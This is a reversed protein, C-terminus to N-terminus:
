VWKNKITNARKRPVAKRNGGKTFNHRKAISLDPNLIHLVAYNYVACDLAENDDADKKTWKWKGTNKNFLMVESTLQKFYETGSREHPFHCYGPGAETINLRKMLVRKLRDVALSHVAPRYKGNTMLTPATIRIEDRDWGGVGKVAFIAPMKRGHRYIVEYVTMANYGIDIGVGSVFMFGGGECALGKSLSKIANKYCVNRYDSTDGEFIQYDLNWREEDRGWGVLECELRDKQVDIAATIIKVGKPVEQYDETRAELEHEDATDGELEYTEGLVTNYFVGMDQTVDSDVDIFNQVVDQLRRLPSYLASLQFSAHGRTERNPVWGGGDSEAYRILKIRETDNFGHDCKKCHVKATAVDDEEWKVQEWELTQKEGCHPCVVWFKRQDGQKYAQEIWSKNKVTPTSLELLKRKEGFTESRQRLLNVPHGEASAEYADTEDCIVVPASIGRQTNPSGAWALYLIGGAFTKMEQNNAGERGRPKAYVKQLKPNADIMPDFKGSLWKRLDPQTPQMLIQSMPEHETFFGLLCLAIMTKGIQACTMVTIRNISPDICTDLIGRQFPAERFSIRGPRANGASVLVNKEAWESPLLHEKPAYRSLSLRPM